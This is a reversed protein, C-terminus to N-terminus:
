LFGKGEIKINLLIQRGGNFAGCHMQRNKVCFDMYM